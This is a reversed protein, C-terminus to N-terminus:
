WSERAMPRSPWFARRAARSVPQRMSMRGSVAGAADPPPGFGADAASPPVATSSRPHASPYVRGVDSRGAALAGADAAALPVIHGFQDPHDRIGSPDDGVRGTSEGAASRVQVRSRRAQCAGLARARERPGQPHWTRQVQGVQSLQHLHAHGRRRGGDPPIPARRRMLRGPTRPHVGWSGALMFTYRTCQRDPAGQGSWSLLTTDFTRTWSSALSNPTLLLSTSALSASSPSNTLDAEDVTSAGTARRSRSAMGGGDDPPSAGAFFGAALGAAFFAAGAASASAGIAAAGAAASGAGVGGVGGAAGGGAAEGAGGAAGAAGAASDAAGPSAPGRGAPGRGAPGRGPLLGNPAPVPMPRGVPGRGPLLGKLEPGPVPMPRGAGDTGPAGRGLGPM